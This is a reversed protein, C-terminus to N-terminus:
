HRLAALKLPRTSPYVTTLLTWLTRSRSLSARTGNRLRKRWPLSPYSPFGPVLRCGTEQERPSRANKSSPTRPWIIGVRKNSPTNHHLYIFVIWSSNVASARGLLPPHKPHFHPKVLTSTCMSFLHMYFAISSAHQPMELCPRARKSRRRVTILSFYTSLDGNCTGLLLIHPTCSALSIWHIIKFITQSTSDFSFLSCVKM